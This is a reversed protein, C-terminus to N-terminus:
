DRSGHSSKGKWSEIIKLGQAYAQIQRPTTHPCTQSYAALLARQIVPIWRSPISSDGELVCAILIDASTDLSSWFTSDAKSRWVPDAMQIESYAKIAYVLTGHASNAQIVGNQYRALVTTDLLEAPLTMNWEAMDILKAKDAALGGTWIDFIKIGVTRLHDLCLAGGPKDAQHMALVSYLERWLHKAPNVSLYSIHKGSGTGAEVLTGAPERSIPLKAYHTGAALVVKPSQEVFRVARTVPVLRGLYTTANIDLQAKGYNDLEWFPCGWSSNGLTQVQARTLLNLHITGFLVDGRFFTHLMSGELCPSHESTKETLAGEWQTTGILGGPSFMQYVLLNLTTRANAYVRGGPTAAHDFLTPNNGCALTLDVKDALANPSADLGDVQLFAHEGFLNFRHRWKALYALAADALRSRCALWDAEDVPGDLAAQAICILLRTLAIRQCPTAALDAISEGDRFVADLSVERHKGDQMVVPIWPDSVLNM